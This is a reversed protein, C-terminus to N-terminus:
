GSHRGCLGQSGDLLSITVSGLMTLQCFTTLDPFHCVKFKFKYFSCGVKENPSTQLCPHSLRKLHLFSEALDAKSFSVKYKQFALYNELCIQISSEMAGKPIQTCERGQQVCEQFLWVAIRDFSIEMESKQLDMRMKSLKITRGREWPWVARQFLTIYDQPIITRSITSTDFNRIM